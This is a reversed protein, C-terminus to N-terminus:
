KKKKIFFTAIGCYQPVLWNSLSSTAAGANQPRIPTGWCRRARAAKTRTTMRRIIRAGSSRQIGARLSQHTCISFAPILRQVNLRM